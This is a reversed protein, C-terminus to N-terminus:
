ATLTMVPAEPVSTCGSTTALPCLRPSPAFAWSCAGPPLLGLGVKLDAGCYGVCRHALVEKLDPSPAQSWKRTHIDLISERAKLNPLPFVLERDFRCCWRLGTTM